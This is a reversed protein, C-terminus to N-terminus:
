IARRPSPASRSSAATGSLEACAIGQWPLPGLGRADWAPVRSEKQPPGLRIPAEGAFTNVAILCIVLVLMTRHM